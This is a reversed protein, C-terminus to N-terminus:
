NEIVGISLTMGNLKMKDKIIKGGSLEVSPECVSGIGITKRVFDSGKFKYDINKIEEISFINLACNLKEKLSLIAKEEAKIEVTGIAKVARFDINNEELAQLVTEEMKEAPFDKKCGIGLIIDKRILKLTKVNEKIHLKNTVIILGEINDDNKNAVYGKPIKILNKEDIFAVKKRDVLLGAIDKANKLNDIILNNDKAIMDPAKINLNDTATTIIPQAKTIESVIKTLENAGGLHGSLLSIAYKLSNDLVVIAPDNVKSKIFPAIGRVAIGTSSIFIIGDFKEMAEKCIKNLSLEKVKSKAYIFVEYNSKELQAKLTNSVNDGNVTVSIIAIKMKERELNMLFISTM